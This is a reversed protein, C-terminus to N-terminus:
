RYRDAEDCTKEAAKLRSTLQSESTAAFAELIQDLCKGVVQKQREQEDRDNKSGDLEQQIAAVKDNAADLDSKLKEIETSNADLTVKQAAVEDRARDTEGTQGVLLGGLVGGTVFLLAAIVALAILGGRRPKPAAPPVPGGYPMGSM